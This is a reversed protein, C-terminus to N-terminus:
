RRGTAGRRQLGRWIRLTAPWAAAGTDDADTSPRAAFRLRHRFHLQQARVPAVELAHLLEAADVFDVCHDDLALPRSVDPASVGPSFFVARAGCVGAGLRDLRRRM